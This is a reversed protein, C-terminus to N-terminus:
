EDLENLAKNLDDMLGDLTPESGDSPKSGTSALKEVDIISVTYGMIEGMDTVKGKVMIKDGKNMNALKETITERKDSPINCRVDTSFVRASNSEVSFYEGESDMNGLYGTIELWKGSFKKQARMENEDLVKTMEGVTVKEMEMPIEEKSVAETDSDDSAAFGVAFIALVSLTWFYKKMFRDNKITSCYNTQLLFELIYWHQRLTVSWIQFMSHAECCVLM